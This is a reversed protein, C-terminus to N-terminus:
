LKELIKFDFFIKIIIEIIKADNKVKIRNNYLEVVVNINKEQGVFVHNM